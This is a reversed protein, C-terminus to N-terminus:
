RRGTIWCYEPFLLLPIQAPNAFKESALLKHPLALRKAGHINSNSGALRGRGIAIHVEGDRLEASAM